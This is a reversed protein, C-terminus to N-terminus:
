FFFQDELADPEADGKTAGPYDQQDSLPLDLLRRDPDKALADLLIEYHRMMEAVTHPDFLDLSYDCNGIIGEPSESLSLAMDFQTTASEILFPEVKLGPLEIAQFPTNHLVFWFRFLPTYNAKREPQLAEVLIEFPLYQHAYAGLSVDRVRELLDDFTPNGSLQTRLVLTNVFCGILKETESRSRNAIPSGVAIDDRGSYRHLLAKFGALLCMYLTVGRDLCLQKLSQLLEKPLVFRHASGLFTQERPRARSVPLVLAPNYGALQEKWYGLQAQLADGQLSKRQWVAYDAYQIPLDPLPSPEGELNAAYLAAVENILIGLSWGDSVIHHITLMMLHEQEYLKLLKVRLLPGQGLDFPEDAQERALRRIRSDREYSVLSSLNVVPLKLELAPAIVQALEGEVLSFTTRLSEHRSIVQNLSQELKAADLPGNIRFGMHVNFTPNGPMMQNLFWLRQQASSLPLHSNHEARSIPADQLPGDSRMAMEVAEALQRLVPSEFLVRLPIEVGMASRIRSLLQTALLSHGRLHFFNDHISVRSVGLISSWIAALSEEVLTRPAVYRSTAEDAALQIESLARRDIKGNLTKPLAELRVFASPVMYDPLFDALLQRLSETKVDADLVLYACLYKNGSSDERDAVAVDKVQKHTRLLSEIEGIEIRVGRIKVQQDKRGLFELNGDELVRGYDGTKYVVDNPDSNFPNQIFAEATLDPRNYYGLACFPTRIYIEGVTGHPCPKGMEDVVMVAAGEMPKGIPISRRNADAPKVFYFLKTVTTETPGYLNVLQISEGFLDIWRKVDSPLLPEGALVVHRLSPFHDRKLYTNVIIRFVSPVCHLINIQRDAIWDVLRDAQLITDRSVPVCVTGASCLPVFVDKLYGDFSPLALQSVRTGETAGLAKIEWRVFHAIGKLRGAIGKPKGTSGSTFYVSCMADPDPSATPRAPNFYARYSDLLALGDCTGDGAQEADICVGRARPVASQLLSRMKLLASSEIIYWEAAIDSLMLELRKQPFSPDLPVFVCRAKLAALIATVVNISDKALLAIMSGARAGSCILFNALNNSRDELEGYTVRRDGCEIAVNARYKSAINSFVEHVSEHKIMSEKVM